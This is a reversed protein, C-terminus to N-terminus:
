LATGKDITGVLLLRNNNKLITTILLYTLLIVFYLCDHIKICLQLQLSYVFLMISRTRLFGEKDVKM